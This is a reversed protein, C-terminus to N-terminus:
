RMWFPAWYLGDSRPLGILCMIIVMFRPNISFKFSGVFRDSAVILWYDAPWRFTYTEGGPMVEM